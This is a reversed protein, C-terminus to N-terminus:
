RSQFSKTAPVGRQKLRFGRAPISLRPAAATFSSNLTSLFGTVFDLSSLDTHISVPQLLDLTPYGGCAEGGDCIFGDNDMDTGSVIYHNGSPVDVFGYPYTGASPGAATTAITDLTNPDVLLIYQFGVSSPVTTGVNMVISVNVTNATSTFTITANYTGNSLGTRDVAARYTGLGDTDVSTPTVSLWGGSNETVNTVQLSGGGPNSAQLAVETLSAGFSMASPTVSLTPTQGPPPGGGLTQAAAAAARADILGYGYNDDRGPSGLDQTITGGALLGELQAPTMGPALSKMLAAVGAVHPTAMSTGQYFVYNFTVNGSSDDGSTSLVGDGYGDGNSDASLDGGPAAVDITSGFNSYYSLNKDFDVASVSLAGDYAAPYSPLSSTSNGAAAVVIVGASRVATFLDQEQQLYSGGGLSLNIVDARRSAITGSDNPMQAAFRIGQMVDYVTGGGAGLVRVPMIRVGWAVGAVGIGNNSAAAVTGAVHTGHFSSSGGGQKDGSDNPNPDIGDGDRARTANSIFDYGSVLQGQLDPHGLLVGTDVVAVTVSNSGTSLNWAAPLNILGYHWQRGYFPDNPVLLPKRIYNLEAREVEPRRHLAKVALITDLAERRKPSLHRHKAHMARRSVAAGLIRFTETRQLESGLGVLMARDPAGGIGSMGLTSAYGQATMAPLASRRLTVIAQGPVFEDSLRMGFDAKSPLPQGVTLGYTSGCACQDDPYVEVYFSGSSPATLSETTGLGQSCDVLNGLNNYLCLDLDAQGPGNGILLGITQGAALQVHYFDRADGVLRSGGPPGFGPLNVYGGVTVPNPIEQANAIDDNSLYPASPDNVDSDASTADAARVTGGVDNKNDDVVLDVQSSYTVAGLTDLAKVRLPYTGPVLFRLRGIGGWKGDGAVEDGNRGGDALSGVSRFGRGDLLDLEISVRGPRCDDAVDAHATVTSSVGIAFKDDSLLFNALTPAANALIDSQLSLTPSLNKTKDSAILDFQVPGPVATRLRPVGVFIQGPPLAGAGPPPAAAPRLQVSGVLLGSQFAQGRVGGADGEPDSVVAVLSPQTRCGAIPVGVLEAAVITPATAHGDLPLFVLATSLLVVTLTAPFVGRSAKRERLGM